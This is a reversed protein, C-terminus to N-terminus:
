ERVFVARVVAAGPWSPLIGHLRNSRAVHDLTSDGAEAGGRRQGECIGEAGGETSLLAAPRSGAARCPGGGRVVLVSSVPQGTQQAGWPASGTLTNQTLRRCIGDERIELKSGHMQAELWMSAAVTRVISHITCTRPKCL